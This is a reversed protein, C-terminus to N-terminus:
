NIYCIKNTENKNAKNTNNTNNSAPDWQTVWNLRSNVIRGWGGTHQTILSGSYRAQCGAIRCKGPKCHLRFSTMFIFHKVVHSVVFSLPFGQARTVTAIRTVEADQALLNLPCLHHSSCSLLPCFSPSRSGAETQLLHLLRPCTCAGQATLIARRFWPLVLWALSSSSLRTPLLGAQWEETGHHVGSSIQVMLACFSPSSNTLSGDTESIVAM